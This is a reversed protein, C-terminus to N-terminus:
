PEPPPDLPIRELFRRVTADLGNCWVEDITRNGENSGAWRIPPSEALTTALPSGPVVWPIQDPWIAGVRCPLAGTRSSGLWSRSSQDPNDLATRTEAWARDGWALFVTAQRRILRLPLGAISGAEIVEDGGDKGRAGRVGAVLRGAAAADDLHLTVMGRDLKGNGMGVWGTLGILHSWVDAELRVGFARAALALRARAPAVNARAPDAREIQDLLSFVRVWAEGRPDVRFSLAALPGKSPISDLWDPDLPGVLPTDTGFRGVITAVLTARLLRVQGTILQCQTGAAAAALQRGTPTTWTATAMPDVRILWGSEIPPVRRPTPAAAVAAELQPRSSAAFVGAPGRAVLVLTKGPFRDVRYAGIPPEIGGGSLDATPGVVSLTGDDNPVRARWDWGSGGPQFSIALEADDLTRYERVMAPNFLAILTDGVKGLRKPEPSARKWASLAAAPSSVRSGQFLNLVAEVERDPRVARITITPKPTPEDAQVPSSDFQAVGVLGGLALRFLPRITIM